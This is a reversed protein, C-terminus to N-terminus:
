AGMGRIRSSDNVRSPFDIASNICVRGINLSWHGPRKVPSTTYLKRSIHLASLAKYIPKLYRNPSRLNGKLAHVKDITKLWLSQLPAVPEYRLIHILSRKARDKWSLQNMKKRNQSAHELMGMKQSMQDFSLKPWTNIEEEIELM